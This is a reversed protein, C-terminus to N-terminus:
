FYQNRAMKSSYLTQHSLLVNLEFLFDNYSIIYISKFINAELVHAESAQPQPLPLPTQVPQTSLSIVVFLFIASLSYIRM